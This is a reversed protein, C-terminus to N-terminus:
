SDEPLKECFEEITEAQISLPFVDDIQEETLKDIKLVIESDLTKFRVRLSQLLLERKGKEIGKEIGKEVGIREASTIYPMTQESEYAEIDVMLRSEELDPLTIMWDILEYIAQVEDKSHGALYLQKILAFKRKRLETPKNRYQLEDLQALILLGAADGKNLLEQRRNKFDLLKKSGFVFELRTALTQRLFRDPCWKPDNDALIALSEVPQGVYDELRYNYVYMRRPLEDDRQNQVEVHLYLLKKEGTKLTVQVFVDAHRKGMKAKRAVARLEKDLFVPPITWDIAHFLDPFLIKLFQRLHRRLAEKWAGDRDARRTKLKPSKKRAPKKKKRTSKPM